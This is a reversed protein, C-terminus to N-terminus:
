GAKIVEQPKRMLQTQMYFSFAQGLALAAECVLHFASDGKSALFCSGRTVVDAEGLSLDRFFM